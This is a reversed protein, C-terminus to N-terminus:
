TNPIAAFLVSPIKERGKADAKEYQFQLVMLALMRHEHICSRLLIDIEGMPLEAFKGAALRMPGSKIGLFEDGEAYEGPGTKFFGRMRRAGDESGLTRLYKRVDAAKM